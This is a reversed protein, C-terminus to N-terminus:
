RYRRLHVHEDFVLKPIKSNLYYTNFVSMLLTTGILIIILLNEPKSFEQLYYIVTDIIVNVDISM